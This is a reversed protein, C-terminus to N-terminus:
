FIGGRHGRVLLRALAATSDEEAMQPCEGVVKRVFELLARDRQSRCCCVCAMLQLSSVSEHRDREGEGVTSCVELLGHTWQIV